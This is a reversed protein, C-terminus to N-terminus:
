GVSDLALLEFISTIVTRIASPREISYFSDSHSVLEHLAVQDDAELWIGSARPSDGPVAPFKSTCDLAGSAVINAHM